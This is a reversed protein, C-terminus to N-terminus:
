KIVIEIVKTEDNFRFKADEWSPPGFMGRANNSFGYDEVPIGLLNTNLDDNADEDHFAKIAYEGEPLDEFVIVANNNDIPITKGIFPSKHNEYNTGSNCLAIIVNGKNSTMGTFQVVLKGQKKAGDSSFSITSFSFLLILLFYIKRKV